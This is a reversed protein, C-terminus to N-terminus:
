HYHRTTLPEEVTSFRMADAAIAGCLSSIDKPNTTLRIRRIPIGAILSGLVVFERSRMDRDLLYNVYSNAVLAMLAEGGPVEEFIV